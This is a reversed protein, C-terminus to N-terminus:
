QRSFFWLLIMRGDPASSVIGSEQDFQLAAWWPEHKMRGMAEEIDRTDRRLDGGPRGAVQLECLDQRCDAYPIEFREGFQAHIFDRLAAAAAPGWEPDVAEAQLAGHYTVTAPAFVQAPDNAIFPLFLEGASRPREADDENPSGDRAAKPAHRTPSTAASGTGHTAPGLHAIASSRVAMGASHQPAPLTDAGAAVAAANAAVSDQVPGVTDVRRLWFVASIALVLCGLIMRRM